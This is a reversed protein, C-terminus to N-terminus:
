LQPIVIAKYLPVMLKKDRYTINRGIMGLIQNGKRVVIGCQESVVLDAEKTIGIDTEKSTTNLVANQIKYDSKGNSEGTHLCKCKDQNFLM